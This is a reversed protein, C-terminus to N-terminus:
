RNLSPHLGLTSNHPCLYDGASYLRFWVEDESMQVSGSGQNLSGEVSSLNGNGFM